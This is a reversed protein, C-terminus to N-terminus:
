RDEWVGVLDIGSAEASGLLIGWAHQTPIIKSVRRCLLVKSSTQLKLYM